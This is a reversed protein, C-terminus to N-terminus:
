LSYSLSGWVDGEAGGWLTGCYISLYTHLYIYTRSTPFGQTGSIKNRKQTRTKNKQKQSRKRKTAKVHCPHPWSLTATPQPKQSPDPVAQCENAYKEPPICHRKIISKNYQAYLTNSTLTRCILKVEIEDFWKITKRWIWNLRYIKSWILCVRVYSQSSQM